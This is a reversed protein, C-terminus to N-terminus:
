HEPQGGEGGEAGPATSGGEPTGRWILTREESMPSLPTGQPNGEADTGTQRVVRVSWHFLDDASLDSLYNHESLTWQSDRIWPTNDPWTEGPNSAPAFTVLIQYYENAKLQGVPQWRLVIESGSSFERRNAPELLVPAPYQAGASVPKTTPTPSARTPRPSPRPTPVLTSGPAESPTAVPSNTPKPTPTDPQPTATNTPSAPLPSPTFTPVLRTTPVAIPEATATNTATPTDAVVAGALLPEGTDPTPVPPHSATAASTSTTPAGIMILALPVSVLVLCLLGAAVWVGIPIRRRQKLQGAKAHTTETRLIPEVPLAAPIEAFPPRDRSVAPEPAPPMEATVAPTAALMKQAAALRSAADRYGPELAITEEFCRLAAAWDGRGEAEVGATYSDELRAERTLHEGVDVLLSEADKYGPSRTLISQLLTAASRWRGAELEAQAQAYANALAQGARCRALLARYREEGPWLRALEEATALASVWEEQECQELAARYRDNALEKALAARAAALQEAFEQRDPALACAEEWLPVAELWSGMKSERRAQAALEALHAEKARAAEMKAVERQATQRQTSADRYGPEESLLSEWAAVADQWRGEQGGTLATGYLAELRRARALTERAGDLLVAADRSGPHEELMQCWIEIADSWNQDQTAVLARAHLTELRGAQAMLERTVVLRASVDRYDPDEELLNEWAAIADAWREESLAALATEYMVALRQAAEQQAQAEALRDAADRYGPEDRLVQKWAAIADQWRGEQFAVSATEYLAALREFRALQEKAATLRLSTDRYDADEAMVETWADVADLWREEDFALSATEYLEELRVARALQERAEALRSAANRYDAGEAVMQEWAAIAEAWRAERSASVGADYLAALRKLRALQEKTEALRAAVDRYRPAEELVRAWGAAADAWRGEQFAREAAAYQTALREARAKGEQAQRDTSLEQRATHLLDEAGPHGPDLSLLQEFRQIAIEWQKDRLADRGEALLRAMEEQRQHEVRARELLAQVDRYSPDLAMTEELAAIAGTWDEAAMARAAHDYRRELQQCTSARHLLERAQAHHPETAIVEAALVVAQTWDQQEISEQAQYLLDAIRKQRNAEALQAFSDRYNANIALLANLHLIAEDWAQRDTAEMARGYLRGAETDDLPTPTPMHLPPSPPPEPERAPLGTTSPVPTAGAWLEQYFALATPPRDAPNKALAHLIATDVSRPVEPNLSRPSPPSARLHEWLIRERATTGRARESEGYFPRRGTVMEFTVVGLSYVDTRRDTPLSRCQEPSMYAPTGPVVVTMTATDAGRAIGFDAVLVQWGDGTLPNLRMMINGPKVDRHVIAEQHAYQLANCVQRLIDRAEELPLPGGAELIRRRLTIGEVYDMVLFALHGEHAFEYFRVINKHSLQSLNKAERRFRNVFEADEALDERMMKVAVAYSRRLDFARYVEAMGGRGVYADIRYRGKLTRGVLDEM